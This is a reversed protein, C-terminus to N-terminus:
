SNECIFWLPHCSHPLIHWPALHTHTFPTGDPDGVTVPLVPFGVRVWQLNCKLFFSFYPGLCLKVDRVFYSCRRASPAVSGCVAWRGGLPPGARPRDRWSRKHPDTTGTLCLFGGRLRPRSPSILCPGQFFLPALHVNMYSVCMFPSANREKEARRERRRQIGWISFTKVKWAQLKLMIWSTCIVTSM